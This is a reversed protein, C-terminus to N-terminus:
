KLSTLFQAGRHGRIVEEKEEEEESRLTRYCAEPVRGVLNDNIMEQFCETEEQLRTLGPVGTWNHRHLLARPVPIVEARIIEWELCWANEQPALNEPSVPHSVM